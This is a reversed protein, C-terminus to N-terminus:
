DACQSRLRRARVRIIIAVRLLRMRLMRLGSVEVAIACHREEVVRLHAQKASMSVCM